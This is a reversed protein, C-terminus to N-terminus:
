AVTGQGSHFDDTHLEQIEKIKQGVRHHHGDRCDSGAKQNGSDDAYLSNFFFHEVPFVGKLSLLNEADHDLIKARDKCDNDQEAGHCVGKPPNRHLVKVDNKYSKNVSLIHDIKHKIAAKRDKTFLQIFFLVYSKGHGTKKM